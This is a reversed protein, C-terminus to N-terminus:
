GIRRVKVMVEAEHAPGLSSSFAGLEKWKLLFRHWQALTFIVTM